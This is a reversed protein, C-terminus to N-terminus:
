GRSEYKLSTYIPNKDIKKEQTPTFQLYVPCKIGRCGLQDFFNWDLKQAKRKEGKRNPEGFINLHM